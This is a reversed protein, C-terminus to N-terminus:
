KQEQFELFDPPSPLHDLSSHIMGEEVSKGPKSSTGERNRSQKEKEPSIRDKKVPQTKSEPQEQQQATKDCIQTDCPPGGTIATVDNADYTDIIDNETVSNSDEGFSLTVTKEISDSNKRDKSISDSKLLTNTTQSKNTLNFLSELESDIIDQVIKIKQDHNPKNDSEQEGGSSSSTLSQASELSLFKFLRCIQPCSFTFICSIIIYTKSSYKLEFYAHRIRNVSLTM